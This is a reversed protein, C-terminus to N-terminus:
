AEDVSRIYVSFAAEWGPYDAQDYADLPPTIAWWRSSECRVDWIDHHQESAVKELGVVGEGAEIEVYGIIALAVATAQAAITAHESFAV